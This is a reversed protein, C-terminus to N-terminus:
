ERGKMLQAQIHFSYLVTKTLSNIAQAQKIYSADEKVKEIMEMLTARLELTPTNSEEKFQVLALNEPEVPLLERMIKRIGRENAEFVRRNTKVTYRDNLTDASYDIMTHDIGNYMFTKGKLEHLHEILSKGM